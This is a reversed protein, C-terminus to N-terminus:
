KMHLYYFTRLIRIIHEKITENEKRASFINNNILFKSYNERKGISRSKNINSNNLIGKEYSIENLKCGNLTKIFEEGRKTHAFVVSVGNSNWDFDTKTCGWYDGISIDAVRNDGKYGCHYCTKRSLNRFAYGYETSDFLTHFSKGNEFVAKICGPTWGYKKDRITFSRITGYKRTLMKIYQSSIMPSSVGHCVLEVFVINDCGVFAKCAAVDCPVGIFLIKRGEGLMEKIKTYIDNKKAQIYKTGRFQEIESITSAISYHCGTFDKDYKVVAVYWGNKIAKSMMAYAAGGSSSKLISSDDLLSLSYVKRNHETIKIEEKNNVPCVRYCMGCQVCKENNIKPLWFGEADVQHDIANFSCIQTCAECGYCDEVNVLSINNM